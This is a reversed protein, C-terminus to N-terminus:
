AATVLRRAVSVSQSRHADTETSAGAELLARLLDPWGYESALHLPSFGADDTHDVAACARM